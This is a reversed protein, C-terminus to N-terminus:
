GIENSGAKEFTISHITSALTLYDAWGVLSYERHKLTPVISAIAVNSCVAAGILAKLIHCLDKEAVIKKSRSIAKSSTDLYTRSFDAASSPM